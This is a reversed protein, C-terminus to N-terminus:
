GYLNQRWQPVNRVTAQIGVQNAFNGAIQQGYKAGEKGSRADAEKTDRERAKLKQIQAETQDHLRSQVHGYYLFNGPAQKPKEDPDTGKSLQREKARAEELLRVRKKEYALSREQLQQRQEATLAEKGSINKERVAAAEKMKLEKKQQAYAVIAPRTKMQEEMIKARRLKEAQIKDEEERKKLAEQEARKEKWESIKQKRFANQLRQEEERRKRAEAEARLDEARTDTLREHAEIMARRRQDKWKGLLDRKLDSKRVFDKYWVVHEVVDEHSCHVLDTVYDYFPATEMSKHKAYARMFAEHDDKLWGGTAGGDHEIEATLADLADRLQSVSKDGNASVLTRKRPSLGEYIAGTKIDDLAASSSSSQTRGAGEGAANNHEAGKMGKNPTKSTAGGAARASAPRNRGGPTTGGAGGRGGAGAGHASSVAATKPRVLPERSSQDTWATFREELATLTEFTTSEVLSLEDYEQRQKEKFALLEQELGAVAKAVKDGSMGRAGPATNTALTSTKQRLRRIGDYVALQWRVRNGDQEELLRRLDCVHEWAMARSQLLSRNSEMTCQQSETQQQQLQAIWERKKSHHGGSARATGGSSASGAANQPEAQRDASRSEPGPANGVETTM